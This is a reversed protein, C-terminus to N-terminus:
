SFVVFQLEKINCFQETHAGVTVHCVDLPHVCESASCSNEKPTFVMVWGSFVGWWVFCGCYIKIQLCDIFFTSTREVSILWINAQSFFDTIIIIKKPPPASQVKSTQTVRMVDVHSFANLQQWSILENSTYPLLCSFFLQTCTASTLVVSTWAPRSTEIRRQLAVQVSHQKWSICSM